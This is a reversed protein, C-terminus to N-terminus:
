CTVRDGAPSEHGAVVVCATVQSLRYLYAAMAQRSVASGPHFGGDRYGTTIGANKLWSIDGCFPSGGSVDPYPAGGGCIGADSGGHAYRYLYAAMAQRSVAVGPHFTGDRYGTTIGTTKLWGIDACFQNSRGVDPYPPDGSCTGADSGDHDFRYLYAAMAQRSVSVGPRFTGDSYGTTIANEGLWMIDSYFPSGSGVDTFFPQEPLAPGWQPSTGGAILLSVQIDFCDPPNAKAESTSSLYVGEDAQDAPGDTETVVLASGDPAFSPHSPTAGAASMSLQCEDTVANGPGSGIGFRVSPGAGYASSGVAALLGDSFAPQGDADDPVPQPWETARDTSVDYSYVDDPPDAAPDAGGLLLVSDSVWQGLEFVRGDPNLTRPDHGAADVVMASTAQHPACTADSFQTAHALYAIATGDPSVRVDDIGEPTQGYPEGLCARAPLYGYQPPTFTRIVHGQRDMVWIWGLSGGTGQAQNRVAVIMGADSQSVALYGTSGTGDPSPQNGDTTVQVTTAQNPSTLFVNGDKVYVISGADSVGEPLTVATSAVVTPRAVGVASTAVGATPTASAEPNDAAAAVGPLVTSLTLVIVTVAAIRTVSPRHSSQAVPSNHQPMGAKTTM